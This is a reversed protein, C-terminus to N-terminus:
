LSRVSLSGGWRYGADSEELQDVASQLLSAWMSVRKDNKLFPEAELLAGYLYIDPHNDLVWNTTNTGSLQPFAYYILKLAYTTDPAPALRIQGGVIAYVQPTGTSSGMNRSDMENPSMQTLAKRTSGDVYVSRMELYDAPLDTYEASVSLDATSELGSVRLKRRIKAEALTIFDPISGMLDDRKLWSAISTQLESYNSLSM